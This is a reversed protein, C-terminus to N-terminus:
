RIRDLLGIQWKGDQYTCERWNEPIFNRCYIKRDSPIASFDKKWAKGDETRIRTVEPEFEEPNEGCANGYGAINHCRDCEPKVIM